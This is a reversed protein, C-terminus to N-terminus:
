AAGDALRQLVVAAEDPWPKSKRNEGDMLVVISEAIAVCRGENFLGQAFAVSSRGLRALRTGVAATGPHHMEHRFEVTIKVLAFLDTPEILPRVVTDLFHVRGNEFFSAFVVNNVHNQRDVDGYRLVDEVWDHYSARDTPDLAPPAFGASSM